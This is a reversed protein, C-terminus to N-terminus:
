VHKSTVLNLLQDIKSDVGEFKQELTTLRQEREADKAFQPNLEKLIQEGEKINQKYTEINALIQKSNSIINEVETQLGQKTESLTMKGNNYSVISFNSPISNFEYTSGDISVKMDIYTQSNGGFSNQYNVKPQSVSIVEGIKLKPTTAKDLIYILSGQNLVSFM